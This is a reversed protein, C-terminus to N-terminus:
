CWCPTVLAQLGVAERMCYSILLVPGPLETDGAGVQIKFGKAQGWALDFLWGSCATDQPDARTWSLFHGSGWRPSPAATPDPESWTAWRWM